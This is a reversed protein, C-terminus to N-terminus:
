ARAERQHLYRRVLPDSRMPQYYAIEELGCHERTRRIEILQGYVYQPEQGCCKQSDQWKAIRARRVDPPLDRRTFRASGEVENRVYDDFPTKSVVFARISLGDCRAAPELLTRNMYIRYQDGLAACLMFAEGDAALHRVIGPLLERIVRLGDPGGSGWEPLGLDDGIPMFPPNCITRDFLENESLAAVGDSVRMECRSELGNLIANFRSVESANPNKELFVVRSADRMACVLGQVGSGACIDLVSLGRFCPALTQALFLSDSGMYIDQSGTRATPYHPPLSCVLNLGACTNVAVGDTHWRRAQDRILLGVQAMASAIEVPIMAKVYREEVRQGLLLLSYIFTYERSLKLLRRNVGRFGPFPVIDDGVLRRLTPGYDIDHLYRGIRRIASPDACTIM